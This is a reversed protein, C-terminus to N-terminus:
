LSVKQPRMIEEGISLLCLHLQPTHYRMCWRHCRYVGMRNNNQGPRRGQPHKGAPIGLVQAASILCYYTAVATINQRCDLSRIQDLSNELRKFSDIDV